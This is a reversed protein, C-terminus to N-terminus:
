FRGTGRWSTVSLLSVEILPPAIIIWSRRGYKRTLLPVSGQTCLTVLREGGGGGLVCGPRLSRAPCGVLQNLQCLGPPGKEDGPHPKALQLASEQNWQSSALYYLFSCKKRLAQHRFQKAIITCAKQAELTHWASNLPKM